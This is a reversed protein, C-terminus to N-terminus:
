EDLALVELIGAPREHEEALDFPTKGNTNTIRKDASAALLKDIVIRDALVAAIHLPTDGYITRFPQSYSTEGESKARQNVIAGHHILREVSAPHNGYAACHLATTGCKPMTQNVDAGEAILFDILEIDDRQVVCNLLTGEFDDFHVDGGNAICWRVIDTHGNFLAWFFAPLGGADNVDAGAEVLERVKSEDGAQAAEKLQLTAKIRWVNGGRQNGDQLLIVGNDYSLCKGSEAGLAELIVNGDFQYEIAFLEGSGFFGDQLSLRGGAHSLYKGDEAGLAELAVGGEKFHLNWLEGAGRYGKMLSFECNGHCLYKGVEVGLSELSVKAM